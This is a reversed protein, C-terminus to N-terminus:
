GIKGGTPDLKGTTPDIAQSTWELTLPARLAEREISERKLRDGETEGGTPAVPTPSMGAIQKDTKVLNNVGTESTIALPELQQYDPIGSVNVDTAANIDRVSRNIEEITQQKLDAM